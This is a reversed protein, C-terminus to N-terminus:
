PEGRGPASRGAPSVPPGAGAPGIDGDTLLGRGAYRWVGVAVTNPDGDPRGFADVLGRGSLAGGILRAYVRRAGRLAGFTTSYKRSKTIWHGGWGFAHSWRLLGPLRGPLRGAAEDLAAAFTEDTGLQWCTEVMRRAHAHLPLRALHALSRVPRDLLGGATVSKTLYKALYNAIKGSTTPGDLAVPRIDVQVGWRVALTGAPDHPDPATVSVEAVVARLCDAVLRTTAWGPPAVLDDPDEGRGDVRVVAHLHVLGRAQMEVAKVFTIRVQRRLGAVTLGAAAAVASETADRTAKWLVPALSNWIVAGPYDFCDPCLPQGLTPDGDGHRAHCGAPRGHPCESRRPRCARAEGRKGRSRRSHVPGFSPATLTVFLAPHGSVTDPVSTGGALGSLVIRRADRKYTASCAPCVSERRNNCRVHVVGGPLGAASFARRVEGSTVDVHDTHGKLRIPSVCGGAVAVQVSEAM